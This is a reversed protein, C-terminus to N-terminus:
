KSCIVYIEACYEPFKKGLNYFGNIMSDDWNQEIQGNSLPKFFIGGENIVKLGSKSVDQKLSDIDYVRYHGLEHDRQNLDYESKLLGMEVAVLRHISKANPVSIIFVSDDSMWNSIHQLLEIPKEIHELVHSMVITDFTLDTTFEEFYSHHKVVNDYDPIQNLLDLAGEVLHISDFDKVLYSTMQGIAPGLELALDGKFFPKLSLYNFETLKFDFNLFSENYFNSSGLVKKKFDEM